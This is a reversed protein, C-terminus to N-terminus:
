INKEQFLYKWPIALFILFAWIIFAISLAIPIENKLFLMTIFLWTLQYLIQFILIPSFKLPYIVGIFSITAIAIWFSGILQMVPSPAFANQYVVISALEANLISIFGIFGAAFINVLYVLKLM